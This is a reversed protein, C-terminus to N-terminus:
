RRFSVAVAGRDAGQCLNTISVEGGQPFRWNRGGPETAIILHQTGYQETFQHELHRLVRLCEAQGAQAQWRSVRVTIASLERTSRDFYAVLEAAEDFLTIDRSLYKRDYRDNRMEGIADDSALADAQALSMGFQYGAYGDLRDLALAVPAAALLLAVVWGEGKVGESM